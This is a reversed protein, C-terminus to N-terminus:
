SVTCCILLVENIIFTNFKEIFIVYLRYLQWLAENILVNFGMFSKTNEKKDPYSQRACLNITIIIIITYLM